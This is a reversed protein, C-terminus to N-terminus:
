KIIGLDENKVKEVRDSNVIEEFTRPTYGMYDKMVGVNFMNCPKNYLEEMERRVHQMMNEEWSNHVHAYFHYWGYYHNKFCPIPYHCLVLGKGNGLGLEKYDCIEVFLSRLERNKLLRSDHNGKLLHLRGNLQSFIEITKTSNYWSIDGLIYVDDDIGVVDNWRNTLYLDHTEIDVFRRNDFSLANKHGYHQDGIFYNM